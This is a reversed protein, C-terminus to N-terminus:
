YTEGPVTRYIPGREAVNALLDLYDDSDDRLPTPVQGPYGIRSKIDPNLFYAGATLTGLADFLSVHHAHLLDIGERPPLNATLALAQRLPTVLDPRFHLAEEVWRSPVDAQSASPMGEGEPILEDAIASYTAREDATLVNMTVPVTQQTM